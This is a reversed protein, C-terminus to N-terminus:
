ANENAEARAADSSQRVSDSEPLSLTPTIAEIYRQVQNQPSIDFGGEENLAYIEERALMPDGELTLRNLGELSQIVAEGHGRLERLTDRNMVVRVRGSVDLEHIAQQILAVLQEPRASLADGVVRKGVAELILAAQPIFGELVTKQAHYAGTMLTQASHLLECTQEEAQQLGESLGKQFGAKEGDDHAQQLTADRRSEADQQIGQATEHAKAILDAAQQRAKQVVLQAEREAQLIREETVRELTQEIERGRDDAGAIQKAAGIAIQRQDIKAM